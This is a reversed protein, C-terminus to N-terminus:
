FFTGKSLLFDKIQQRARFIRSKVTGAELGTVDSIEKYSLGNMDRLVLVERYQPCLSDIAKRVASIKEERELAKQPNSDPSDDPLDLTKVEGDECIITISDTIERRNKQHRLLDLASNRTITLIYSYLSKIETFNGGDLLKWLKVFVEQSVDMADERNLLLRFALTYVSKQCLTVIEEFAPESQVSHKAVLSALASLHTSLHKDALSIDENKPSEENACFDEERITQSM